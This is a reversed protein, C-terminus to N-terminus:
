APIQAPTTEIAGNTHLWQDTPLRLLPFQNKWDDVVPGYMKTKLMHDELYEQKIPVGFYEKWGAM